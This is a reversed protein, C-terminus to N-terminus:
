RSVVTVNRAENNRVDLKSHYTANGNNDAMYVYWSGSTLAVQFRGAQDATVAQRTNLDNSRVFTVLTGAKPTVFDNRVITGQVNGSTTPLSATREPRVPAQSPWVPAPAKNPAPRYSSGSGREETVAPGRPTEGAAPPIKQPPLTMPPEETVAPSNGPLTAPPAAAVAGNACPSNCNSVQEYYFSQRYSTTPVVACRAVYSQVANCQSRLRYSTTPQAIQQCCGTCPDYYSSYRYTTVPEYYYSTKYTTVPEYYTTRTYTTVPEYYSRQV